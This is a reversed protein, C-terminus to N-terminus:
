GWRHVILGGQFDPVALDDCNLKATRATAGESTIAQVSGDLLVRVRGSGRHPEACGSGVEGGSGWGDGPNSWIVTGMPLEATFVTVDTSASGARITVRGAALATLEPSDRSSLSVVNTDSTTWALGTVVQGGVRLAQLTRTEGVVLSEVNPVLAVATPRSAPVIFTRATSWAGGQQVRVV